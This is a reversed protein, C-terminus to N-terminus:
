HFSPRFPGQLEPGVITIVANLLRGVLVLSDLQTYPLSFLLHALLDLTAEVFSRFLTGSAEALQVLAHLAASQM